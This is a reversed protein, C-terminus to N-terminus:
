LLNLINLQKARLLAAVTLEDGMVNEPYFKHAPRHKNTKVAAGTM